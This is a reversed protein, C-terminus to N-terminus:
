GDRIKCLYFLAPFTKIKKNKVFLFANVFLFSQQKFFFNEYWKGEIINNFLGSKEMKLLLVEYKPM